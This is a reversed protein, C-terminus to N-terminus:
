FVYTYILALAGTIMLLLALISGAQRGKSGALIGHMHLARSLIMTVGFGHLVAAPLENMELLFLIFLLMPVTEVFNGHVARMKQLDPVNNDGLSVRYKFRNRVVLLFLVSLWLAFIGTYLAIIM